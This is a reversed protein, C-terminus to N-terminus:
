VTIDNTRNRIHEKIYKRIKYICVKSCKRERSEKELGRSGIWLLIRWNIQRKIAVSFTEAAPFLHLSGSFSIQIPREALASCEWVWEGNCHGMHRSDADLNAVSWEQEQCDEEGWHEQQQPQEKKHCNRTRNAPTALQQESEGAASKLFVFCFGFSFSRGINQRIFESISFKWWMMFWTAPRVFCFCMIQYPLFLLSSCLPPLPTQALRPYKSQAVRM